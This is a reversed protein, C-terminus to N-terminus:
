TLAGGLIQRLPNPPAERTLAAITEAFDRRALRLRSYLTNLPAEVIEAVEPMSLEYIEHLVFVGRRKPELRSLAEMVLRRAQRQELSSDAASQQEVITQAPLERRNRALRRHNSAVRFAVGAIWPRVPRSPDYTHLQRYITVFVDHVVDEVDREPIGLHRVLRWVYSIEARYIAEFNRHGDGAAILPDREGVSSM